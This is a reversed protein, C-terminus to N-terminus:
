LIPPVALLVPELLFSEDRKEPCVCFWDRRREFVLCASVGLVEWAFAGAGCGNPSLGNSAAVDAMLGKAEGPEDGPLRQLGNIERSDPTFGKLGAVEATLGNWPVDEV